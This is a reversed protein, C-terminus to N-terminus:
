SNCYLDHMKIYQEVAAPVMHTIPQQHAVHQRIATASHPLDPMKLDITRWVTQMHLHKDTTLNTIESADNLSFQTGSPRSAVVMIAMEAIQDAYEWNPLTQAQDAGIVMHLQHPQSEFKKHLYLLTDISYSAIPHDANLMANQIEFDDIVVQCVSGAHLKKVADLENWAGLGGFAAKAMKLRLGGDTLPRAKHAAYGTPFIYLFDMNLDEIVAKAVAVHAVHPPDFAGGYMAINLKKPNSRTHNQANSTM